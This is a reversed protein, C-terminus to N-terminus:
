WALRNGNYQVFCGSDAPTLREIVRAMGSASEQPSIKPATIETTLDTAVLGPSMQVVTFLEPSLDVALSQMTMNLAAKSARYAYSGGSTGAISGLMSTISVIRRVGGLRLAPLLGLTLQVAGFVNTAFTADWEAADFAELAPTRRYIGANNVLMDLPRKAWRQCLAAVSATDTVELREVELAGSRLDLFPMAAPDRATGVVRWGKALYREVLALGIGRNGGTILATKM